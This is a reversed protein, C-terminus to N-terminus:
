FQFRVTGFTSILTQSNYIDRLGRGPALVATGATIVINDSLLPRYLVGVSSDVGITRRIGAQQLLFVLPETRSFQLFSVNGILKITQTLKGDVGANYLFLGPNVFNSQGEDKSARLDPLFSDGPTLAVGTGTLRISERNFFSFAGGAFSEADVISDFGHATRGRPNKEGGAYLFSARYRLWDSDRSLEVETLKANIDMKRDAFPNLTDDGFVQYFAHNINTRGIHGDGTWGIYHADIRHLLPTGDSIVTGIPAPRVLFGNDDYHLTAQDRQFHYSFQTTYGKIFFDQIFMNAIAVERSRRRFTNLGSNTNKELLDFGVFNYQLRNSRLNGFLRFGPQEDAFILGRFDSVFQQVGARLNVFDFNPGLNRLKVEGFAEQLGVHGDIRSTGARVDPSIVQNEQVRIYNLNAAPTVRIRWDVPRFANTEGHFLDFTFRFTQALFFQGGPGFFGPQNPNAASQGSPVPLRRGEFATISDGTFSFFTKQGRIPIDGKLKNRNFPDYWHGLVFPAELNEAYRHYLPMGVQWRDPQPMYVQNDPALQVEKEVVVAGNSDPRRSITQYQGEGKLETPQQPIPSRGPSNRIAILHVEISLVEGAYLHVNSRVYTQAGSKAFLLDYNGPPLHLLRFIGDGATQTAAPATEGVLQVSVRPIPGNDADLVIGQLSATSIQRQQPIRQAPGGSREIEQVGAAPTQDSTQCAVETTLSLFM